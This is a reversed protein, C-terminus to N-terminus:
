CNMSELVMVNLCNTQNRAFHRMLESAREQQAASKVNRVADYEAYADVTEQEHRKKAAKLSSLQQQLPTLDIVGANAQRDQLEMNLADLAQNYASLEAAKERWATIAASEEGSLAIASAPNTRKRDLSSDVAQYAGQLLALVSAIIGIEPLTFEYGAPM